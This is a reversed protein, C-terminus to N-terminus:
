EDAFRGVLNNLVDAIANLEKEKEKSRAKEVGKKIFILEEKLIAGNKKESVDILKDLIMVKLKDSLAKTKKEIMYRLIENTDKM